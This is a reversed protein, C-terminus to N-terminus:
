CDASDASDANDASDASDGSDASATVATVATRRGSLLLMVEPRQSVVLQFKLLKVLSM